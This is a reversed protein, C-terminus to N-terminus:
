RYNLKKRHWWAWMIGRHPACLLSILVLISVVVVITPGTPMNNFTSSILTGVIGSFAGIIAALFVMIKLRSTWQRAASAPAILMTSMLIVGVTQLGIVITFLLLFTLLLDILWTKYGLTRAYIPDFVLLLLEKWFLGILLLVFAGIGIMIYVEERLLTAANGFLFKNLIAQQAIEKKAIATLLVLGVGFFVSLVMGLIADKKLTTHNEVLMVLLTGVLGSMAGGALLFAPNKSHTLLFVAAIGPLAAHSVADGLLSQGRLLAFVGLVGATIGLITVGLLVTWLTYDYFFMM